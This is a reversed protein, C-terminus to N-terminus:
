TEYDCYCRAEACEDGCKLCFKAKIVDMVEIRESSYLPKLAIALQIALARASANRSEAKDLINLSGLWPDLAQRRRKDSDTAGERAKQWAANFRGVRELKPMIPLLDFPIKQGPALPVTGRLRELLTLAEDLRGAELHDLATMGSDGALWGNHHLALAHKVTRSRDRGDRQQM